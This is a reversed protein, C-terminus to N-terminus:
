PNGTCDFFCLSVPIIIVMPAQFIVVKNTSANIKMKIKFCQVQMYLLMELKGNFFIIASALTSDNSVQRSILIERLLKRHYKQQQIKM